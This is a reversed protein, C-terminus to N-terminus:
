QQCQTIFIHVNMKSIEGSKYPNSIKWWLFKKFYVWLSGSFQVGKAAGRGGIEVWQDKNHERSGLLSSDYYYYIIITIDIIIALM